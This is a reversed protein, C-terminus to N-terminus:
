AAVNSKFLSANPRALGHWNLAFVSCSGNPAYLPVGASCCVAPLNVWWDGCVEANPAPLWCVGRRVFGITKRSLFRDTFWFERSTTLCYCWSRVISRCQQSRGWTLERRMIAALFGKKSWLACSEVQENVNLNAPTLWFMSRVNILNYDVCRM